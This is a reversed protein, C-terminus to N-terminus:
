CKIQPVKVSEPPKESRNERHIGLKLPNRQPFHISSPPTPCLTRSHDLSRDPAYMQKGQLAQNFCLQQKYCSGYNRDLVDKM